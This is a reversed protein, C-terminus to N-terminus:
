SGGGDWGLAHAPPEAIRRKNIKQSETREDPKCLHLDNGRRGLGPQLTVVTPIRKRTERPEGPGKSRLPLDDLWPAECLYPIRTPSFRVVMQAAELTGGIGWAEGWLPAASRLGQVIWEKRLQFLYAVQPSGFHPVNGGSTVGLSRAKALAFQRARPKEVKGRSPVPLTPLTGQLKRGSLIKLHHSAM